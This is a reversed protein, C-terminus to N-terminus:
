VGRISKEDLPDNLDAVRRPEIGHTRALEAVSDFWREEGPVDDHTYVVRVSEGADFLTKM